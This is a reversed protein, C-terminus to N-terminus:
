GTPLPAPRWATAAFLLCPLSHCGHQSCRCDAIPPGALQTGVSPTGLNGLPRLVGCYLCWLHGNCCMAACSLLAGLTKQGAWGWCRRTM